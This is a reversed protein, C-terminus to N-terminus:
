HTLDLPLPAFYEGGRQLHGGSQGPPTGGSQYGPGGKLLSIEHDLEDFSENEVHIGM